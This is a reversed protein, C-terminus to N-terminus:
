HIAKLDNDKELILQEISPTNSTIPTSMDRQPIKNKDYDQCVQNGNVVRLLECDQDKVGSVVHDTIGKGTSIYSAGNLASTEIFSTTTVTGIASTAVPAMFCASTSGALILSCVTVVKM